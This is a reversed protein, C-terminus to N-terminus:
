YITVSVIHYDHELAYRLPFAKFTGYKLCVCWQGGLDSLAKYESEMRAIEFTNWM